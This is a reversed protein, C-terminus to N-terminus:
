IRRVDGVPADGRKAARIVRDVEDPTETTFLYHHSLVGAATVRPLRDLMYTPRSNVILTRHQWARLMPFRIGRRDTLEARGEACRRCDAVARIACKELVMLPVRGYVVAAKPGDIPLDRLQPLTLEVAGLCLSLVAALLCAAGALLFKNGKVYSRRWFKM